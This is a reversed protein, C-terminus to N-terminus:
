ATAKVADILSLVESLSDMYNCNIIHRYLLHDDQYSLPVLSINLFWGSLWPPMHLAVIIRIADEPTYSHKQAVWRDVKSPSVLAAEALREVTVHRYDMIARLAKGPTTPLSSIFEYQLKSEEALTLPEGDSIFDNYHRNYEEDSNISNLHFEYNEDMEFVNEFRLCCEDVHRNAYDTMVPGDELSFAVTVYIRCNRNVQLQDTNIDVNLSVELDALFEYRNVWWLSMDQSIVCYNLHVCGDTFDNIGLWISMEGNYLRETIEAQIDRAYHEFMFSSFKTIAPFNVAKKKKALAPEDPNKNGAHVAAGNEEQELDALMRAFYRKEFDLHDFESPEQDPETDCESSLLDLRELDIADDIDCFGVDDYM